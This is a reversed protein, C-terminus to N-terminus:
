ENFNKNIFLADSKSALGGGTLSFDYFKVLSFNNKELFSFIEGVSSQGIFNLDFFLEIFVFKIKNKNMMNEAGNLVKLEFGETDSKLIHINEINNKKCYDDITTVNVKYTDIIQANGYARNLFSNMADWSYENFELVGSIDALGVSNLVINKEKNFDKELQEFCYKSAEFGHIQSSPFVKLIKKLTQGHNMGVDFVIPDDLNIESNCANFVNSDQLLNRNIKSLKYGKRFLLNKLYNKLSKNM